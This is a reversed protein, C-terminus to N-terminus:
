GFLNLRHLRLNTQGGGALALCGSDFASLLRTDLTVVFFIFNNKVRMESKTRTLVCNTIIEETVM